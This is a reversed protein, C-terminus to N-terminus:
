LIDEPLSDMASIFDDAHSRDLTLPPLIRVVTKGAPLALIGHDRALKGLISGSGRKVEIGILLGSGRIDRTRTGITEKLEKLLYSGIKSANEPLNENM